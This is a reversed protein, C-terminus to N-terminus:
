GCVFDFDISSLSSKKVRENRIFSFISILKNNEDQSDDGNYRVM